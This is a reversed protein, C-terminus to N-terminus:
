WGFPPTGYKMRLRKMFTDRSFVHGQTGTSEVAFSAAVAGLRVCWLPPANKLRGYSYGALFADGAGNPDVAERVQLPPIHRSERGAQLQIDDPGSTVVSINVSSAIRKWSTRSRRILLDREYSNLLLTDVGALREVLTTEDVDMIIKGPDVIVPVSSASCHEMLRLMAHPIGATIVALSRGRLDPLPLDLEEGPDGFVLVQDGRRDVLLVGTPTARDKLMTIDSVGIEHKKLYHLYLEGDSGLWSHLAARIGLLALTYAVNGGCGGFRRIPGRSRLNVYLPGDNAPPLHHRIEGSYLFVEDFALSGSVLLPSSPQKQM